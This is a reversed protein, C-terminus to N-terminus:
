GERCFLGEHRALFRARRRATIRYTQTAHRFPLADCALHSDLLLRREAEAVKARLELVEAMAEELDFRKVTWLSSSSQSM